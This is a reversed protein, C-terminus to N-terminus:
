TDTGTSDSRHPTAARALSAALRVKTQGSTGHRAEARDLAFGFRAYFKHARHNEALVWVTAEQCGHSGLRDLVEALLRRGIGRRWGSPEVYLATVEGTREGADDDRSRPLASGFGQVGRGEVEAVVTFGSEEGGSLIQRWREERQGPSMADLVEDPLIGRYAAQWSSVHVRAISPADAVGATRVAVCSM